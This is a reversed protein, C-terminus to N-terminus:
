DSPIWRGILMAASSSDKMGHKTGANTATGKSSLEFPIARSHCQIEPRQPFAKGLSFFSIIIRNKGKLSFKKM